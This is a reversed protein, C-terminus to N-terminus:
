RTPNCGACLSRQIISFEHDDINPAFLDGHDSYNSAFCGGQYESEIGHKRCNAALRTCGVLEGRNRLHTLGFQVDGLKSVLNKNDLALVKSCSSIEGNVSVAISNRGAQCGFFGATQNQEEFDFIRLNPGKNESYWRYVRKMQKGYARICERTWKVDTAHGIVFQNVGMKHLGVVDELLRPVNAPMVTLKAGIWPQVKKLNGMGTMVREFTGSGRKDIRYRDHSTSLGDISLLVKIKHLALYDVNDETLLIGNTTMDFEVAKGRNVAQEEAYETVAQVANFSLMPEGGFHTVFVTAEDRSYDFLLDVAAKAIELPMRRCGLMEKEFCYTCALNCGETHTLEIHTIAPFTEANSADVVRRVISRIEEPSSACRDAIDDCLGVPDPEDLLLARAAVEFIVQSRSAPEVVM